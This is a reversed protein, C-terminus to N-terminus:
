NCMKVVWVGDIQQVCGEQPFVPMEKYSSTEMIETVEEHSLNALEEGLFTKVFRYRVGSTILGNELAVGSLSRLDESDFIDLEVSSPNDKYYIHRHFM